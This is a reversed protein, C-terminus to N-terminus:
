PIVAGSSTQSKRIGDPPTRGVATCSCVPNVYSHLLSVAISQVGEDRLRRIVERAAVEDLPEVVNGFRDLREPVTLRWRREVLPVLKSWSLDYLRPYRLRGIELADRFGRTTLLGTAVGRREVITNTAVTTGHVIDSIAGPDREDLLGNLGELIAVSHDSPSSPVKLTVVAGDADVLVLDTFTGGIDVGIRLM